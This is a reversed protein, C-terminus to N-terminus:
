VDQMAQEVLNHALTQTGTHAFYNTAIDIFAAVYDLKDDSFDLYRHLQTTIKQPTLQRAQLVGEMWGQVSAFSETIFNLQGKESNGPIVEDMQKFAPNSELASPYVNELLSSVQRTFDPGLPVVGDLCVLAAMRMLAEDQYDDAVAAAFREISAWDTPIHNVQCFAALEAVVKLGLDIAQTVDPKPTVQHLFSLLNIKGGVKNAMAAAGLATDIKDVVHYIWLAQQFGTDPRSYIEIARAAIHRLRAPDTEGSVHRVMEGFDTINPWRGPVLSDLARLVYVTVSKEPLQDVVDRINEM